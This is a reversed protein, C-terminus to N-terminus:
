IWVRQYHRHPRCRHQPDEVVRIVGSRLVTPDIVIVSVVGRGCRVSIPREVRHLAGSGERRSPEEEHPASNIGVRERQEGGTQRNGRKKWARPKPKTVPNSSGSEANSGDGPEKQLELEKKIVVALWARLATM